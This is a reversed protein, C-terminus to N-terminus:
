TDFEGDQMRKDVDTLGVELLDAHMQMKPTALPSSFDLYSGDRCRAIVKAYKTKDRLELEKALNGLKIDAKIEDELLQKNTM